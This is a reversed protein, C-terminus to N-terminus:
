FDVKVGIQKGTIVGDARSATQVGKMFGDNKIVEAEGANFRDMGVLAYLLTHTFHDPGNREWIYEAGFPTEKTTRFVNDFHSAWEEWDEITGNLRIRGTDRLQDVMLQYMKNRDVIVQGVQENEGWKIVEVSKRDKRYYVLYVRGPYKAQLRRIGILDGGQDAIMISRPWRKLFSELEDYPDYNESPQNCKGYYFVGQKNMITYHIPLGTDVGIIIKDEQENVENVINRLVVHSSIKNGSGVYPLGLVYNYFYQEDKNPDNKADIIAKATIHDLMLQSSHFGSFLYDGVIYGDWEVGDKNKWVGEIRDDNSLEGHCLSCVYIEKEIDINQPWSLVQEKKCHPCTIYWEKQDSQQWYIDVGFGSISPHSFYWRWGGAKGQLRTEYQTIVSADSADVEDHINLDSSVMMAQKTSFTGRYYIINDGVSKQDVTDRDKVWEKLIPNQAVLRNIKGGAMDQVDSATPLTYIIDKGKKKAVYFSKFINKVTAGIQPPKLEVQLPSMDDYMDILFKRRAFDIPLGAENRIGYKQVWLSPHLEMAELLEEDTFDM